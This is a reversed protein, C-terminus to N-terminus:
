YAPIRVPLDTAGRARNGAADEGLARVIYDGAPLSAPQWYGQAVGAGGIYLEGPVGLPCRRGAADLVHVQTAAIPRGIRIGAAPTQVRWVSSWVTTETPGYMNWLAGVRELLAAALDPPLAEGGVLATLHIGGAWGAEALLRYTTPTAQLLTAGSSELLARLAPGDAAQEPTALVGEAGVTLPLLLELVAIDFALTTVAV